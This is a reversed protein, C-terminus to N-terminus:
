ELLITGLFTMSGIQNMARKISKADSKKALATMVLGDLSDAILNVDASELVPSTDVVIYDYGAMRLRDIAISFAIPDLLPSHKITPNVAMVHLPTLPEPASKHEWLLYLFGERGGIRGAYLIDAHRDRMTEDVFTTQRIELSAFDIRAAIEPRLASALVGRAHEVNSFAHHFLADHTGM